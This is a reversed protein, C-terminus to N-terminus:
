PMAEFVFDAVSVAAAHTTLVISQGRVNVSGQRGRGMM